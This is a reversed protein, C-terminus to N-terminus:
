ELSWHKEFPIDEGGVRGVYEGPRYHEFRFRLLSTDSETAGEQDMNHESLGITATAEHRGPEVTVHQMQWYGHDPLVFLRIEGAPVEDRYTYGFNVVLRDPANEVVDVFHIKTTEGEAPEGPAEYIRGTQGGGGCAILCALVVFVLLTNRIM